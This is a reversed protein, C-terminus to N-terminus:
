LVSENEDIISVDSQDTDDDDSLFSVIALQTEM